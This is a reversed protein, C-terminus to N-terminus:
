SHFMLTAPITCTNGHGNEAADAPHSTLIQCLGAYLAAQGQSRIRSALGNVTRCHLMLDEVHM